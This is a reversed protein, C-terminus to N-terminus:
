RTEGYRQLSLAPIKGEGVSGGVPRRTFLELTRRLVKGGLWICSEVCVEVFAYKTERFGDIIKSTAKSLTSLLEVVPFWMAAFNSMSSCCDPTSEGPTVRRSVLWGTPTGSFGMFRSLWTRETATRNNRRVTAATMKAPKLKLASHFNRTGSSPTQHTSCPPRRIASRTWGLPGPALLPMLGPSRSTEMLPCSTWFM